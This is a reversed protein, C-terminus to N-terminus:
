DLLSKKALSSIEKYRKYHFIFLIHLFVTFAIIKPEYIGMTKEYPIFLFDFVQGLNYFILIVIFIAANFLIWYIMEKTRKNRFLLFLNFLFLAFIMLPYIYAVAYLINIFLVYFYFLLGTM